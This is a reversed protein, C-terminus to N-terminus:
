LVNPIVIHRGDSEPALAVLEETYEPRGESEDPTDNRLALSEVLAHTTPKLEAVEVSEMLSFYDLMNSVAEALPEIEDEHLEVMALAATIKLEETDM